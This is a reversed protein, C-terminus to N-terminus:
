CMPYVGLEVQKTAHQRTTDTQSALHGKAFSDLLYKTLERKVNVALARRQVFICYAPQKVLLSSICISRNCKSHVMSLFYQVFTHLTNSSRILM